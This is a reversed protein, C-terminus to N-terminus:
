ENKIVKVKKRLNEIKEKLEKVRQSAQYYTDQAQSAAKYDYGRDACEYYMYTGYADTEDYEAQKLEEELKKIDDCM